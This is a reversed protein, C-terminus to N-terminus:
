VYGAKIANPFRTTNRQILKGSFITKQPMEEGALIHLLTHILQHSLAELCNDVSTLTPSCCATLMSNNYGIVSIDEPIHMGKSQAYKLGGIALLDDSALIGHFNIRGNLTEDLFGTVAEVSGSPGDYFLLNEPSNPIGNEQLAEQFGKLKKLGSYSRSNYLYLIDTIGSRIMSLTADHMSIYDDCLISYVNPHHYSANLLMIPVQDAAEKIYENELESSAIFHSGVLIISDVKKSLVLNLYNKRVDQNSGTCCLLAEYGKAQLEQELLYIAKATYLDSSDACLIGITKSSGLGMGRAFANPIYGYQEIIGMVKEKTAPTVNGSGNLVRSVTATSVGAKQSIDYITIAM